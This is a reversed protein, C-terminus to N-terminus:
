MQTAWKDATRVKVGLRIGLGDTFIGIFSRAGGTAAGGEVPYSLVVQNVSLKCGYNPAVPNKQRFNSLSGV